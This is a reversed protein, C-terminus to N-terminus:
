NQPTYNVSQPMNDFMHEQYNYFQYDTNGIRLCIVYGRDGNMEPSSPYYTGGPEHWWNPSVESQPSSLSYDVYHNWYDNQRHYIFGVYSLYTNEPYNSSVVPAQTFVFKQTSDNWTATPFTVLSLEGSGCNSPIEITKDECRPYYYAWCTRNEDLCEQISCELSYLYTVGASVFYDTISYNQTTNNTNNNNNNFRYHMSQVGYTNDAYDRRIGFDSMNLAQLAQNPTIVLGNQTTTTNFGVAGTGNTATVPEFDYQESSNDTESWTQVIYNYTHGPEVCTDTFEIKAPFTANNNKSVQYIRNWYGNDSIDYININTADAPIKNLTINIGDTGATATYTFDSDLPVFKNEGEMCYEESDTVTVTHICNKRNLGNEWGGCRWKGEPEFYCGLYLNEDDESFQSKLSDMDYTFEHSEGIELIIDDTKALYESKQNQQNWYRLYNSITLKGSTNNVVKYIFNYNEEAQSLVPFNFFRYSNVGDMCYQESDTVTVTHIENKQNLGNEWGGCRWKNEPEFYCGMYSTGNDYQALDTTKYKFQYTEGQLIEVDATKAIIGSDFNSANTDRIYNAVTLKGSTNNVIEYIFDEDSTTTSLEPIPDNSTTSNNNNNNTENPDTENIWVRFGYHYYNFGAVTVTAYSGDQMQVNRLTYAYGLNGRRYLNDDADKDWVWIKFSSWDATNIKGSQDVVLNDFNNESSIVVYSYNPNNPDLESKDFVYYLHGKYEFVAKRYNGESDKSHVLAQLTGLNEGRMELKNDSYNPSTGYINSPVNWMNDIYGQWKDEDAPNFFAAREAESKISRKVFEQGSRLVTSMSITFVSKDYDLSPFESSNSQGTTGSSSTATKNTEETKSTEPEDLGNSCASLIIATLGAILLLNLKKILTM